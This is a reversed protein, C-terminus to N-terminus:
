DTAESIPGITTQYRIVPSVTAHPLVISRVWRAKRELHYFTYRKPVDHFRLLDWSSSLLSSDSIVSPYRVHNTFKRTSPVFLPDRVCVCSVKLIRHDPKPWLLFVRGGPHLVHTFYTGEYAVTLNLVESEHFRKGGRLDSCVPYVPAPRWKWWPDCRRIRSRTSSTTKGVPEGTAVSVTVGTGFSHRAMETARYAERM